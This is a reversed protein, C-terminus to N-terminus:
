KFRRYIYRNRSIPSNINMRSDAMTYLAHWYAENLKEKHKEKCKPLELALIIELPNYYALEAFELIYATPLRLRGKRYQSITATTEKWHKAIQYDSTFGKFKKFQDLVDAQTPYAKM